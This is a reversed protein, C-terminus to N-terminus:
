TSSPRCTSVRPAPGGELHVQKGFLKDTGISLRPVGVASKAATAYWGLGPRLVPQTGAFGAARTRRRHTGHGQRHGRRRAGGRDHTASFEKALAQRELHCSLHHDEGAGLAAQASSKASLGVAGDGVAVITKRPEGAADAAYWGTGLTRIGGYPAPDTPHPPTVTGDRRLACPRIVQQRQLWVSSRRAATGQVYRSPTAQPAPECEGPLINQPRRRLRRPVPPGSGLQAVEGIYEHGTGRHDLLVTRRLLSGPRVQICSARSAQHHRRHNSPTM